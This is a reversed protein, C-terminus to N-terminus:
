RSGTGCLVVYLTKLLISCDLGPSFNRIYYLDYALKEKADERGGGYHYNVQAWGTLGPRVLHRLHYYPIHQQYDDVCDTWEPRPGILSMEGVLINWLQPLEDLRSKRLWRGARTIRDDNTTTTSNHSQNVQMTRFKHITFLRGCYGVRKQRYFAPGPSDLKVCLAIILIFPLTLLLLLTSVIIDFCRKAPWWPGHQGLRFDNDFLWHADLGNIDLRRLRQNLFNGLTFVPVSTAHLAALSGINALSLTVTSPALVVATLDLPPISGKVKPLSYLRSKTLSHLRDQLADISIPEINYIDRINLLTQTFESAEGETGVFLLRPGKGLRDPCLFRSRKIWLSLAWFPICTGLLLLRSPQESLGYNVFLSLELSAVAAAIIQAILSEATFKLSRTDYSPDYGGIFGMAGVAALSPLIFMWANPINSPRGQLKLVASLLCLSITWLLFDILVLGLRRSLNSSRCDGHRLAEASLGIGFDSFHEQSPSSPVDAPEASTSPATM